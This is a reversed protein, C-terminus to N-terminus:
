KTGGTLRKLQEIARRLLPLERGAAAYRLSNELKNQRLRARLALLSKLRARNTTLRAQWAKQKRADPSLALAYGIVRDVPYAPGPDHHGGGIVGLESHMVVGPKVVQGNAVRGRQIPIRHLKSWYAVWEAANRLQADPWITQSAFGIQELGLSVSNYGACHWAKRSDPVYRADNGEADNCAHSSAQVAARDFYDGLGQLDRIGPLNAGETDHLVILRITAGNRSSQNRVLHTVEPQPAM